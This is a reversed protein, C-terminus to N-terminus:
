KIYSQFGSRIGETLEQFLEGPQIIKGVPKGDVIEYMVIKRSNVNYPDEPDFNVHLKKNTGPIDISQNANKDALQPDLLQDMVPKIVDKKLMQTTKDFSSENVKYLNDEADRIFTVGYPNVLPPVQKWDVGTEKFSKAIDSISKVSKSGDKNVRELTADDGTKLISNYINEVVDKSKLALVSSNIASYAKEYKAGIRAADEDSVNSGFLKPYKDKYKAVIEKKATEPTQREFFKEKQWPNQPTSKSIGFDPQRNGTLIDEDKQADDYKDKNLEPINFEPLAEMGSTKDATGKTMGSINTDQQPLQAYRDETMSKSVNAIADQIHEPTLGAIKAYLGRDTSEDGYEAKLYAEVAARQDKNFVKQGTKNDTTEWGSAIVNGNADKLDKARVSSGSTGVIQGTSGLGTMAKKADEVVDYVGSTRGAVFDQKFGDDDFAGKYADSNFYSAKQRNILDGSAGRQILAKKTEEWGQMADSYNKKVQRIKDDTTYKSRLGLLKSKTDQTFGSKALDTSVKDIDESYKNLVPELINADQKLYDFKLADALEMQKTVAEDHQQRMLSPAYAQEQLSIKNFNPIYPM